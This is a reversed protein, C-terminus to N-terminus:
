PAFRRPSLRPPPFFGQCSWLPSAMAHCKARNNRKPIWANRALRGEGGAELNWTLYRRMWLLKQVTRSPLGQLFMFGSTVDQGVNRECRPGLRGTSAALRDGQLRSVHILLVATHRAARLWALSHPLNPQAATHQKQHPRPLLAPLTSSRTRLQSFLPPQPATRLEKCPDCTEGVNTQFQLMENTNQVHKTPKGRM